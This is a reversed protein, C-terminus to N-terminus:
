CSGPVAAYFTCPHLMKFLVSSVAHQCAHPHAGHAHANHLETSMVHWIRNCNPILQAGLIGLLPQADNVQKIKAVDGRLDALQAEYDFKDVSIQLQDQRPRSSLGGRNHCLWIFLLVNLCQRSNLLMPGPGPWASTRLWWSCALQQEDRQCHQQRDSCQKGLLMIYFMVCLSAANSAASSVSCHHVHNECRSTYGAGGDM